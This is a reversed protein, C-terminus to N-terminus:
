VSTRTNFYFLLSVLAKNDVGRDLMLCRQILLCLEWNQENMVKAISLSVKALIFYSVPAKMITDFDFTSLIM